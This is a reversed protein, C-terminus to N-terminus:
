HSIYAMNHLITSLRSMTKMISYVTVLTSNSLKPLQNTPFVRLKLLLSYLKGLECM